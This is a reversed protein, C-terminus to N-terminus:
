SPGPPSLLPSDFVQVVVATSFNVRSGSVALYWPPGSRALEGAVDPDLSDAPLTLTLTDRAITSELPVCGAAAGPVPRDVTFERGPDNLCLFATSSDLPWPAVTFTMSRGQGSASVSTAVAPPTPELPSCATLALLSAVAALCLRRAM